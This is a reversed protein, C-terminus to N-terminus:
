RKQPWPRGPPASASGEGLVFNMGTRDDGPLLNITTASELDRGQLYFVSARRSKPAPASSAPRPGTIRGALALTAWDLEAVTLQRPNESDELSAGVIYDGAALGFIRYAGRDDSAVSGMPDLRVWRGQEDRRRVDLLAIVPKGSPDSIFGSLAASRQLSISIQARGTEDVVISTGAGGSPRGGHSRTVYGPKAASVTAAGAPIGTFHAYGAQDTFQSYPRGALRLTVIAGQLPVGSADESVEVSVGGAPGSPRSGIALTVTSWMLFVIWM